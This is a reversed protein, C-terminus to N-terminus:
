IGLVITDKAKVGLGLKSFAQLAPKAAAVRKVTTAKKAPRGRKKPAAKSSFKM